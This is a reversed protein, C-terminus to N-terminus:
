RQYIDIHLDNLELGKVVTEKDSVNLIVTGWCTWEEKGGSEGNDSLKKQHLLYEM